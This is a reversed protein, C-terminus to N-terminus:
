SSQGGEWQCACLPSLALRVIPRRPRLRESCSARTAMAVATAACTASKSSSHSGAGCMAVSCTRGAIPPSPHFPLLARGRM